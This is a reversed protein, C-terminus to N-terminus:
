GGLNGIEDLSKVGPPRLCPPLWDWGHDKGACTMHVVPYRDTFLYDWWIGRLTAEPPFNRDPWHQRVQRGTEDRISWAGFDLPHATWGPPLKGDFPSTSM